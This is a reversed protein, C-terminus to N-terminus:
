ASFVDMLVPLSKVEGFGELQLQYYEVLSILLKRRLDPNLKLISSYNAVTLTSFGESDIRDMTHLSSNRNATFVGNQLDFHCTRKDFEGKPFFGFFKTLRTLFILHFYTHDSGSDFYQLSSTIYDFLEEDPSEERLSKYLMESLFLQISGKIPDYFLGGSGSKVSIEKVTQLDYKERFHFTIDVVSLPELASLKNGRKRGLGRVMFSMIGFKRTYASAIVSSGSYPVKKLILGETTTEV